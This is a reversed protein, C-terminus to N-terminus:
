RHTSSSVFCFISRVLITRFSGTSMVTFTSSSPSSVIVSVACM